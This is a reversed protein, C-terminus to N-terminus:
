RSSARAGPRSTRRLTSAARRRKARREKDGGQRREEDALDHPLHGARQAMLTDNILYHVTLTRSAHGETDVHLHGIPGGELLPFDIFAHYSTPYLNAWALGILAGLILLASYESVFSWVRYM